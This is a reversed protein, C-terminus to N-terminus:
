GGIPPDEVGAELVKDVLSPYDTWIDITCGWRGLDEFYTTRNGQEEFVITGAEPDFGAVGEEPFLHLQGGELVKNEISGGLHSLEWILGSLNANRPWFAFFRGQRHGRVLRAFHRTHTERERRPVDEMLVAEVGERRLLGALLARIDIPWLTDHGRRSWKHPLLEALEVPIEPRYGAKWKSPGLILTWTM